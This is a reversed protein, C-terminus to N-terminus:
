SGIRLSSRTLALEEKCTSAAAWAASSPKDDSDSDESDVEEFEADVVDDGAANADSGDAEEGAQEAYLRQALSGSTEALAASKAEIAEKDDSELASKLDSVANEVALREEGTAKEGLETLTKEAAHILGDAQNRTDVM